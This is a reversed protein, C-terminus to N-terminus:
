SRNIVYKYYVLGHWWVWWDEHKGSNQSRTDEDDSRMAGHRSVIIRIRSRLRSRLLALEFTGSIIHKLLWSRCGVQCRKRVKCQGCRSFGKKFFKLIKLFIKFLKEFPEFNKLLALLIKWVNFICFITQFVIWLQSIFVFRNLNLM